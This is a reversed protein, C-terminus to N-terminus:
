IGTGGGPGPELGRDRGREGSRREESAAMAAAPRVGCLLLGLAACLAPGMAAGGSVASM